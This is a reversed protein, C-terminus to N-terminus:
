LLILANGAIEKLPRIEVLFSLSLYFCNLFTIGIEMIKGHSQVHCQWSRQKLNRM